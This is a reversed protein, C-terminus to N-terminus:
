MILRFIVPMLLVVALVRVLQFLGVTFPEAGLEDAIVAMQTLGGPSCALLATQADLKLWRRVFSALFLSSTVTAVTAAIVTAFSARLEALTQPNFTVGIFVGICIQAATRLTSPLPQMERGTLQVLAVAVMAGIVGGAPVQLWDLLYGGAAGILTAILWHASKAQSASPASDTNDARTLSPSDLSAQRRALFPISVNTTVLRFTQLTAVLAVDANVAGAMATMEAIGGPTTGILSTYLDIRTLRAVLYGILLASLLLWLTSVTIPWAMTRSRSVTARDVQLGLYTGIISQAGAKFWTPFSPPMLGLCTTLGVILMPGIVTAAPINLREAMHWGLWGLLLVLGAQGLTTLGYQELMFECSGRKPDHTCRLNPIASTQCHSLIVYAM